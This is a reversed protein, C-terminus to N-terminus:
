KTKKYSSKFFKKKNTKNKVIIAKVSELTLTKIDVDPALKINEGKAKSTKLKMNIYSGFEGTKIIYKYKDDKDEWLINKNNSEIFTIAHELLLDNIDITTKDPLIITDQNGLSITYSDSTGIKIWYGFKGRNLTIKKNQYKGINKPWEFLKIADQLTITEITLPSKIPAYISKKESEILKVVPGFKALTAVIEYGSEPHIGLKKSNQELLTKDFKINNLLEVKDMFTKYFEKLVKDWQLEGQAILDLKEEMEATFQYDMIIPFKSELFNTVIIGINTPIFKNNEKGVIIEKCLESLKDHKYELIISNQKNGEVNEKKVYNRMQLKDIFSAYTAPRGIELKKLQNVLSAENYRKPPNQYEQSAVINEIQLKTQLKPMIFKKNTEEELEEELKELNDINYVSLYGSFILEEHQTIFYYDPTKNIEIQINIINFRADTMQSAVTRKWILNYLRIEDNSIKGKENTSIGKVNVDTPRIAEHAEQATKSKSKYQTKKYYEKGFTILCYKGISELAENSLNISDTRMYTIYGAEYLHQATTMTRKATMGLKNSAEQQLTVTEFPASPHRISIKEQIASIIYTSKILTKMLTKADSYASIKALSGKKFNINDQINLNDQIDENNDNDPSIIIDQILAKQKKTTYLLAKYVDKKNIFNGIFKFYSCSEKDFFTKIIQEQEVILKLVVSQVRGASLTPNGINKWLLPSLKYGVIRDLLRRMKQANVQHEQIMVPNKVANIIENTTISNFVIRKPNVLKLERALSWAIMEGERDEDAALLVQDSKDAIKKLKAVIDHKGKIISYTPEFNLLDISLTKPDLDIIHGLSAMITYNDGLIHKIKEIKGSSEVIVLIKSM